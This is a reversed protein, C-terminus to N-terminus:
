GRAGHTWLGQEPADVFGTGEDISKMERHVYAYTYLSSASPMRLLARTPQPQLASCLWLRERLLAGKGGVERGAGEPTSVRGYM